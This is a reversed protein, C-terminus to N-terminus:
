VASELRDLHEKVRAYYIRLFKASGATMYVYYNKGEARKKDLFQYVADDAPRTQLLAFMVQFLAKRLYPSGRKSIKRNTAEFQGSQYPPADLGAFAVLSQKREFHYIDGIEAIIQACLNEGVGRMALVVPYEPLMAVLRKMERLLIAATGSVANIQNVAQTILLKTSDSKPLIGIHGCSETYIDEAKEENFHYGNRKCWKQYRDTFMKPTLGCVCECHWFKTVFDLWKEHGDQRVPSSFLTNVDPFTQDLLSILNNKMAAKLKMYQNYQRSYAKLMQRLDEEPFYQVLDMWRDLGYNAIKIADKKDTKVRRISNNGYDHILKAHVVSVFLGAEHLVRAIPQYYKGTYEMVVRTEGNLNLLFDALKGLESVTHVVEFPMKVVEGFPRMVAVMSKGKSVDIGVANM